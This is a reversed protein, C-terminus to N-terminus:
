TGLLKAKAAAFEDDTLVGQTHLDALNKLEASVDQTGAAPAAQPEEDYYEPEPGQMMGQRRMVRRSTRRATRRAVRRNAGFM